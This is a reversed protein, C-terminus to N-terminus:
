GHAQACAHLFPEASRVFHGLVRANARPTRRPAVPTHRSHLSEDVFDGAALRARVHAPGREACGRTGAVEGPTLILGCDMMDAVVGDAEVAPLDPCVAAVRRSDMSIVIQQHPDGPVLCDVAEAAFICSRHRFPWPLKAELQCVLRLPGQSGLVRARKLGLSGFTPSWLHWLDVEYFLSALDFLPADVEAEARVRVIGQGKLARQYFCTIGAYSIAPTWGEETLFCRRLAAAREVLEHDPSAIQSSARESAAAGATEVDGPKSHTRKRDTRDTSGDSGCIHAQIFAPLRVTWLKSM